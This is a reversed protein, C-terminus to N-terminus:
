FIAILAVGTAVPRGRGPPAPRGAGEPDAGGAAGRHRREVRAGSRGVGGLCPAAGRADARLRRDDIRGRGRGADAAGGADARRRRAAPYAIAPGLLILELVLAPQRAARRLPRRAHVRRHLLRRARRAPGRASQTGGRTQRVLVVGGGVLAVGVVEGASTGFGLFAVSAALVLVPALGRAVPYVLSLDARKYAQVLVVVYGIELATSVVVFPWAEPEVRWTAAAVPAFLLVGCPLAAATAGEIDRSGALILNWLAHLAPRASRWLSRTSRCAAVRVGGPALSSGPMGRKSVSVPKPLRSM